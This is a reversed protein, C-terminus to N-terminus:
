LRAALYWSLFFAPLKVLSKLQEFQIAQISPSHLTQFSYAIHGKTDFSLFSISSWVNKHNKVITSILFSILHINPSVCEGLVRYSM